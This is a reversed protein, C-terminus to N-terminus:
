PREGTATKPCLRSYEYTISRTLNSKIPTGWEGFSDCATNPSKLKPTTNNNNNTWNEPSSSFKTKLKKRYGSAHPKELIGLLNGQFLDEISRLTANLQWLFYDIRSCVCYVSMNRSSAINKM